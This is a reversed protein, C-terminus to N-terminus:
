ATADRRQGPTDDLAAALERDPNSIVLVRKDRGKTGQRIVFDIRCLADHRGKSFVILRSGDRNVRNDLAELLEGFRRADDLELQIALDVLKFRM